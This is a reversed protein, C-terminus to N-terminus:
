EGTQQTQETQLGEENQEHAALTIFALEDAWRPNDQNLIIESHFDEITHGRLKWPKANEAEVRTHKLEHRLLRIKNQETALRWAVKDIRIIYDYGEENGTDDLTLFRLIDNTTSISALELKGKTVKKKTDFVCLIEAGQLEPFIDERVNKLVTYVDETVPEYRTLM